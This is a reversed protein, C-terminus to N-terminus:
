RCLVDGSSLGSRVEVRDSDLDGLVVTKETVSGDASKAKVRFGGITNTIFNVPVSIKANSLASGSATASVDLVRGESVVSSLGVSKGDFVASSSTEYISNQTVPDQYSLKTKLESVYKKGDIEFSVSLPLPLDDPSYAQIKLGSEDPVIQCVTAGAAVKNGETASKEKVMGAVDSVVTQTGLANTVNTLSNELQAIQNNLQNVQIEKQSQLSEIQSNVDSLNTKLTALSSVSQNKQLDLSSVYTGLKNSKVNDINALVSKKSNEAGNIQTDLSLIQTDYTNRVTDFSKGVTDFSGKATLIGNEFQVLTGFLSDIASQPFTSAIVSAKVSQKALSVLSALSQLYASQEDSTMSDFKSLSANAVTWASTVSSKLGTDKAGIYAEYAADKDKNADSIGYTEDIMTLANAALAKSQNRANALNSDLKSLDAKKSDQLKEKSASLDVIQTDLTSLQINLLDLQKDIDSVGFGRQEEIKSLTDELISVQNELNSKQTQLSGLQTAFNSNTSALIERTNSLQSALSEKQSVQNKVSVDSFDPIIKAVVDGARVKKGKECSLSEVTGGNGASLNRVNDSLVKAKLTLARDSSSGVQFTEACATGSNSVAPTAAEQSKGCSALLVACFVAAIVPSKRM